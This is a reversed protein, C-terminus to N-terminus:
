GRKRTTMREAVDPIKSLSLRFRTAIESLRELSWRAEPSISERGSRALKVCLDELDVDKGTLHLEAAVQKLNVFRNLDVFVIDPFLRSLNALKQGDILSQRDETLVVGHCEDFRIRKASRGLLDDIEVNTMWLGMLTCGAFMVSGSDGLWSTQPGKLDSTMRRRYVVSDIVEFNSGADFVTGADFSVVCREQFRTNDIMGKGSLMVKVGVFVCRRLLWDRGQIRRLEVADIKEVNQVSFKGTKCECKDASVEVATVDLDCKNLVVNWMEVEHFSCKTFVCGDLVSKHLGLEKLAVRDLYTGSLESKALRSNKIVCQRLHKNKLLDSSAWAIRLVLEDFYIDDRERSTNGDRMADLAVGIRLAFDNQSRAFSGLSYVVAPAAAQKVQQRLFELNSNCNLVIAQAFFFEMFSAHSFKLAESGDLTLFSCLRVDTLAKPLFESFDSGGYNAMKFPLGRLISLIQENTLIITGCSFMEIALRRCAELRDDARLFPIMEEKGADRQACALTYFEYLESPGFKLDRQAIDISGHIITRVVMDLLLPRQVLDELDYVGFIFRIVM